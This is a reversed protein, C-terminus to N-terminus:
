GGGAGVSCLMRIERVVGKLRHKVAGRGAEAVLQTTSAPAPAVAQAAIRELETAM